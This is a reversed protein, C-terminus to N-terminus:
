VGVVERRRYRRFKEDFGVQIRGITDFLVFVRGDANAQESESGAKEIM